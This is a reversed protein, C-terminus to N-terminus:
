EEEGEDEPGVVTIVVTNGVREVNLGVVALSDVVADEIVVSGGAQQVLVAVILQLQQAEAAVQQLRVETQSKAVVANEMMRNLIALEQQGVNVPRAQRPRRNKSKNGM